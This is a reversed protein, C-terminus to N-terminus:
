ESVLKFMEPQTIMLECIPEIRIFAKRDKGLRNLAAHRSMGSMCLQVVSDYFAKADQVTTIAAVFCELRVM